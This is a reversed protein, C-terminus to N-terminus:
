LKREARLRSLLETFSYQSEAIILINRTPFSYYLQIVGNDDRLARVDYNRMVTDEFTREKPLGDDGTKQVSVATFLPQLDANMRPEWVLMAAFAREYSTIPVVIVPANEDVTHIGLFFDNGSADILDQPPNGVISHMFAGFTIPTNITVGAPNSSELIPVIQLIAGLTLTTEGRARSLLRKVDSPTKDNVPFAVAQEAFLLQAPVATDNMRGSDNKVYLVIMLALAGVGFLIGSFILITRTRSKRAAVQPTDAEPAKQHRKEEELAVAQVLSMKKDRVVNQLDDKLTHLARVDTQKPNEADLMSLGPANSNQPTQPMVQVGPPASSTDQSKPDISLASDFVKQPAQEPTRVATAPNREPLKVEQLIRAMDGQLSADINPKTPSQPTTVSPPVSPAAGANQNQEPVKSAGLGDTTTEENAM